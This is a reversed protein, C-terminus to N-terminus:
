AQGQYALGSLKAMEEVAEDDEKALKEEDKSEGDVQKKSFGSGIVTKVMGRGEWDKIEEDVAASFAEKDFGDEKVFRTYPVLAKVKEYLHEPIESLSLKQEWIRDAVDRREKEVRITEAKELKLIRDEQSSITEDKKQLKGKLDEIQSELGAKEQSFTETLEDTVEARIQDVLDSHSYKLEALDMPDGENGSLNGTGEPCTDCPTEIVEMTIEMEEEEDFAAAKTNSDYGFVCVSAEKFVTERWITVPGKLSMGNVNSAAGDEVKEIIKPIAYMSAEYPFGQKSPKRFEESEETEVFKVTKENVRLAGDTLPKGMFAIKKSTDHNELIPYKGKPFKMGKLDIALDGWWWHNKILGGSYITMDLKQTEENETFQVQPRDSDMLRFAAKSLKKIETTMTGEKDEEFKSNAVRIARGECDSGGEKECERLVSNAIKVWKKKQTSTLGKKHKDVEKVTWPM